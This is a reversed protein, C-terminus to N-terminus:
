ASILIRGNASTATAGTGTASVVARFVYNNADVNVPDVTLTASTAGSIITNPPVAAGNKTGNTITTWAGGSNNSAQWIYTLPAATNGSTVSATVSFTVNDASAASVPGRVTAPQSSITIISDKYVTDEDDSGTNFSSLAVLVEQQVRGARGGSGETRLVWGTHAVDGDVAVENADVGFLGITEGQTYVNASTNGFLLAVNAETPASAYIKTNAANVITSNVAWYPANAANDYKGWSSM